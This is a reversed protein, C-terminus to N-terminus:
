EEFFSKPLSGDTDRISSLLPDNQDWQWNSVLFLRFCGSGLNTIKEHAEHFRQLLSKKCNIFKPDIIAESGYRNRNDVHYKIQFYDAVSNWGGADVGPENYFIVLDDVGDVDDSEYNIEKITYSRQTIAGLQCSLASIPFNDVVEPYKECSNLSFRWNDQQKTGFGVM